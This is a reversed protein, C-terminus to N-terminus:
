GEPLSAATILLPASVAIMNTNTNAAHSVVVPVVQGILSKFVTFAAADNVPYSAFYGRLVLLASEGPILSFTANGPSSDQIGPDNLNTASVPVSVIPPPTIPAQAIHHTQPTLHCPM